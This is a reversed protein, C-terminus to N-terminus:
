NNKLLNNKGLNLFLAVQLRSFATSNFNNRLYGLQIKGFQFYNTGIALFLRNQSFANGQLNLFIEDYFRCFIVKTLPLVFQFRYRIRHETKTSKFRQELRYRHNLKFNWLKNKFSMQQYLRHEKSNVEDPLEEFTKDTYLYM